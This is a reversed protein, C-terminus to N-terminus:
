LRDLIHIRSFSVAVFFHPKLPHFAVRQVAGKSKKFPSQSQHKSLQHILVAKSQASISCSDALLDVGGSVQMVKSRWRRSTTARGTGPSRSQRAKCRSWSWSAVIGSQRPRVLGSPTQRRRSETSPHLLPTPSAPISTHSLKNLLPPRLSFWHRSFTFAAPAALLRLDARYCSPESPCSM